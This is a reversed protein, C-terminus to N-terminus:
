LLPLQPDEHEPPDIAMREKYNAVTITTEAALRRVHRFKIVRVGSEFWDKLRPDRRIRDAILGSRGGPVVFILEGFGPELRPQGWASTEQIAFGHVQGGDAPFWSVREGLEVRFGLQEGLTVLLDRMETCDQERLAPDDEKRLRWLGEEPLLEAYSELCARVWRRDPTLLGRFQECVQQDLDQALMQEQQRLLTLTSREVRDLLPDLALEPQDLDYVGSEPEIGRSLHEFPSGQLLQEIRDVIAQLPHRQPSSWDQELQRLQTVQRWAAAHLAAYPAPQAHEALLGKMAQRLDHNEIGKRIAAEGTPASSWASVLQQEDARLACGDLQFGAGEVGALTAAVFGPEAEPVYLVAPKSAPCREAVSRLVTRIATAHWGWDYRRRRLAVKIPAAAERGWLWATWLASLTWYAQNPRPPITLILDIGDLAGTERCLDRVPGAYVSVGPGNGRGDREWDDVAVGDDPMAWQDVGRELARWVNFERFRSSAVLQRPRVRGEPYSWLANAADFATLLLAHTAALLPEELNAQNLKNLISILAFIARGPYVSLAAEAHKRDPDGPSAVGELALAAQMSSRSYDRARDWDEETTQSEGAHACNECAYAKHSPGDLDKDWVFYEVDVTEGCRACRSRYLDLIFPELRTDDKAISALHALAAQLETVGFPQLTRQTVFRTIPNNIALIVRCGALACDLALQPSTGFPDFVSRVPTQQEQLIRTVVGGELPPLFRDLPTSRVQSDGVPLVIEM